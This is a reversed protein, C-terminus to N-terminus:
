ASKRLPETSDLADILKALEPSQATPRFEYSGRRTAIRYVARAVTELSKKPVNRWVADYPSITASGPLNALEARAADTLRHPTTFLDLRVSGLRSRPSNRQCCVLPIRLKWCWFGHARLLSAGSGRTTDLYGNSRARDLLTRDRATLGSNSPTEM